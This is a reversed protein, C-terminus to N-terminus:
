GCVDRLWTGTNHVGKHSEGSIMVNTKNMTVKVGKSQVSNKQQNLKRILQEESEAIMFLDDM